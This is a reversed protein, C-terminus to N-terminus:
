NIKIGQVYQMEGDISIQFIYNGKPISTMDVEEFYKGKEVKKNRVVSKLEQGLMDFISISITGSSIINLELTLFDTFPNPMLKVYTYKELTTEDIELLTDDGLDENPTQSIYLSDNIEHSPRLSAGCPNIRAHFDNGENIDLIVNFIDPDVLILGDMGGYLGHYQGSNPAMYFSSCNSHASLCHAMQDDDPAAILFVGECHPKSSVPVGCFTLDQAYSNLPSVLDFSGIASIVELFQNSSVTVEGPYVQAPNVNSLELSNCIDGKYIGDINDVLSLTVVESESIIIAGNSPSTVTLDFNVDVNQPLYNLNVGDFETNLKITWCIENGSCIVSGDGGANTYPELSLTPTQDMGIKVNTRLDLECGYSDTVSLVMGGDRTPGFGLGYVPVDNDFTLFLPNNDDYKNMWEYTLPLSSQDDILVRNAELDGPESIDDGWLPIFTLWGNYSNVRWIPETNYGRYKIRDRITYSKTETASCQTAPDTITVMFDFTGPISTMEEPLIPNEINGPSWDYPHTSRWQHILTEGCPTTSSDNPDLVFCDWYDNFTGLQIETSGFCIVEDTNTHNIWAQLHLNTADSYNVLVEDTATCGTADTVTVKFLQSDNPEGLLVTPHEKQYDDLLYAPSWHYNYTYPGSGGTATGGSDGLTINSEYMTGSNPQGCATITGDGANAVLEKVFLSCQHIVECNNVDTIMMRFVYPDDSPDLENTIPLNNELTSFVDEINFGDGEYTIDGYPETGGEIAMGSGDGFISTESYPCAYVDKPYRINLKQGLNIEQTKSKTVGLYDEITLTVIFKRDHYLDDFYPSTMDVQACTGYGDDILIDIPNGQLDTCEWLYSKYINELGHCFDNNSEILEGAMTLGGEINPTLFFHDCENEVETLNITNIKLEDPEVFVACEYIADPFWTLSNGVVIKIDWCGPDTLEVTIKKDEVSSGCLWDPPGSPQNSVIKGTSQNTFEYFWKWTNIGCSNGLTVQSSCGNLNWWGYQWHTPQGPAINIPALNINDTNPCSCRNNSFEWNFEEKGGRVTICIDENQIPEAVLMKEDSERCDGEYCVKLKVTITEPQGIYYDFFHGVHPEGNLYWTLTETGDMDFWNYLPTFFITTNGIVPGNIFDVQDEGGFGVNVSKQLNGIQGNSDTVKVNIIQEGQDEFSIQVEEGSLPPNAPASWLYTYPGVGGVATVEYTETDYTFTNGPGYIEGTIEFPNCSDIIIVETHSDTDGNIDTVDLTVYYEGLETYQHPAPNQELSYSGDGFNWEFQLGEGCSPNEFSYTCVSSLSLIFFADLEGDNRSSSTEKVKKLEESCNPDEPCPEGKHIEVSKTVISTRITNYGLDQVSFSGDSCDYVRNILKVRAVRYGMYATYCADIPSLKDWGLNDAVGYEIGNSMGWMTAVEIGLDGLPTIIESLNFGGGIEWGTEYSEVDSKELSYIFRDGCCKEIPLEDLSPFFHQVPKLEEIKTWTESNDGNVWKVPIVKKEILPKIPIDYRETQWCSPSNDLSVRVDIYWNDNPISPVDLDIYFDIGIPTVNSWFYDGKTRYQITWSPPNGTYNWLLFTMTKDCNIILFDDSNNEIDTMEFYFLEDNVNVEYTFLSSCYDIPNSNFSSISIIVSTENEPPIIILLEEENNVVTWEFSRQIGSNPYNISTTGSYETGYQSKIQLENACNAEATLIAGDSIEDGNWTVLLECEQSFASISISIFICVYIMLDKM